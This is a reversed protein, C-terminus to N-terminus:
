GGPSPQSTFSLSFIDAQPLELFFVSVHPFLKWTDSFFFLKKQTTLHPLATFKTHLAGRSFISCPNPKLPPTTMKSFTSQM